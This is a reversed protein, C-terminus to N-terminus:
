LIWLRKPTASMRSATHQLCVRYQQSLTIHLVLGQFGDRATGHAEVHLARAACRSLATLTGPLAESAPARVNSLPEHLLHPNQYPPGAGMALKVLKRLTATQQVGM